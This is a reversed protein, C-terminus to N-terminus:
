IELLISQHAPLTITTGEYIEFNTSIVTKSASAIQSIDIERTAASFNIAVFLRKGGVERVYALVDKALDDVFAFSGSHLAPLERRLHLLTKYFNLTSHKNTPQVAVNRQAYDDALPLWPKGTTFGANPSADWQM